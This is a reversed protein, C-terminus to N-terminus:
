KTNTQLVVNHTQWWLQCLTQPVHALDTHADSHGAGDVEDVGSSQLTLKPNKEAGSREAPVIITQKNGEVFDQIKGVKINNFKDPCYFNLLSSLSLEGLKIEM